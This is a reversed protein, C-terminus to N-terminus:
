LINYIVMHMSGLDTLEVLKAVVSSDKGPDVPSTVAVAIPPPPRKSMNAGYLIKSHPDVMFNVSIDNQRLNNPIYQSTDGRTIVLMAMSFGQFLHLNIAPFIM